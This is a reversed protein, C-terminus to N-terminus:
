EGLIEVETELFVGKERLVTERVREIVSMVDSFSAGGSNIVFGAHKESVRANGVSFGKLGCEDIMAAAYGNAPRKFTSGASPFTLPQSAKRKALLENMEAKIEEADGGTLTFYAGTIILGNKMFPTSRYAIDLDRANIEFAELTEPSVCRVRTLANKIEGGYAGANMYVAGGVSGPIGYAFELGSLSNELAFVCLRKLPVGAGCFIEGCDTFHLQTLGDALRIVIGRLGKDSILVNSGNGLVYFPVATEKCFRLAKILAGEDFPTFFVDAPGGINFSCRSSLPEDFLAEGSQDKM